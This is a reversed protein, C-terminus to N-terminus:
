RLLTARLRDERHLRDTDRRRREALIAALIDEYPAEKPPAPAVYPAVAYTLREAMTRRPRADMSSGRALFQRLHVALPDPISAIDASAAWGALAPPMAPAPPLKLAHRDRIVYTGALMDGFRKGKRSAAAAILAPVGSLLYIEGAGVVARTLAQRFRIPGADDRVTRLGLAYHGPTKGRTLTEFATPLVVWSIVLSATICGLLLATDTGLALELALWFLLLWVALGVLYDIIGSLIRLGLNAPPLDLAVAEGSVLDDRGVGVTASPGGGWGFQAAPGPPPALPVAGPLSPGPRPPGPLVPGYM